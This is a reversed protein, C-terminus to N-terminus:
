SEKTGLYKKTFECTFEILIRHPGGSPDRLLNVAIDGYRLKLLASPRNGSFIALQGFLGMDIRHRGHTYRLKTTTLNTQLVGALDEIYMATNDRRKTTLRYKKALKRLVRHMHRNMKGEIKEGNAREYVLRFAKWYTGLTSASKIGALRRGGKGSTPEVDMRLLGQSHPSLHGTDDPCSRKTYVQLVCRDFKGEIMDLLLISGDSYDEDEDESEDSNNEQDLYYEPPYANDEGAIWELDALDPLDEEDHGGKSMPISMWRQLFFLKTNTPPAAYRSSRGFSLVVIAIVILEPSSPSSTPLFRSGLSGYRLPPPFHLSFLHNLSTQLFSPSLLFSLRLFLIVAM